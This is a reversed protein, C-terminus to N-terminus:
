ANLSRFKRFHRPLRLFLHRLCLHCELITRREASTKLVEYHASAGAYLLREIPAKINETLLSFWHNCHPEDM